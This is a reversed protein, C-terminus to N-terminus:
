RNQMTELVKIQSLDIIIWVLCQIKTNFRVVFQFLLCFFDNLDHISETFVQTEKVERIWGQGESKSVRSRKLDKLGTELSGLENRMVLTGMTLLYWKWQSHGLFTGYLLWNLRKSFLVFDIICIFMLWICQVKLISEAICWSFWAASQVYIFSRLLNKM